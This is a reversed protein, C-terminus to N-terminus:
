ASVFPLFQPFSFATVRNPGTGRALVLLFLSPWGERSSGDIYDFICCSEPRLCRRFIFFAVLGGAFNFTDFGTFTVVETGTRFGPEGDM